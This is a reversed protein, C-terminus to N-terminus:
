RLDLSPTQRVIETHIIGCDASWQTSALRQVASRDKPPSRTPSGRIDSKSTWQVFSVVNYETCYKMQVSYHIPDNQSRLRLQISFRLNLPWKADYPVMAPAPIAAKGRLM